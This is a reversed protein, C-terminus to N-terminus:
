RSPRAAARRWASSGRRRSSTPVRSRRSSRAQEPVTRDGAADWRPGFDRELEFGDYDSHREGDHDARRASLVDPDPRDNRACSRRTRSRRRAAGRLVRLSMSTAACCPPRWRPRPGSRFSPRRSGTAVKLLEAALNQTSGPNISAINLRGPNARAFAIVDQVSKLPSEARTVLMLDFFPPSRFRPSSPSSTTPSRSSCRGASPM